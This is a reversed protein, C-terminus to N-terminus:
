PLFVNENQTIKATTDKNTQQEKKSERQYTSTEEITLINLTNVIFLHQTKDFAEEANISM